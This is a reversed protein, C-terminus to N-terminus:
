SQNFPFIAAKWAPETLWSDFVAVGGGWGKMSCRLPGRDENKGTSSVRSLPVCLPSLLALEWVLEGLWLLAVGEIDGAVDSRELFRLLPRVRRECDSTSFWTPKAKSVRAWLARELFVENLHTHKLNITILNEQYDEILYKSLGRYKKRKLSVVECFSDLGLLLGWWEPNCGRAPPM